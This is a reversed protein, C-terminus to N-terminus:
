RSFGAAAAENRRRASSTSELNSSKGSDPLIKGSEGIQRKAFHNHFLIPEEVTNLRLRNPDDRDPM